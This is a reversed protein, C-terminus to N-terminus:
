KEVSQPTNYGGYWAGTFLATFLAYHPNWDVREGMWDGLVLRHM